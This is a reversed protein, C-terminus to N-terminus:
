IEIESSKQFSKELSDFTQSLDSKVLFISFSKMSDPNLVHVLQFKEFNM